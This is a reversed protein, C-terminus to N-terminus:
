AGKDSKIGEDGFADGTASESLKIIFLYHTVLVDYSSLKMFSHTMM